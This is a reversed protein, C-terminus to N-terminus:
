DSEHRVDGGAKRYYREDSQRSLGLMDYFHRLHSASLAADPASDQDKSFARYLMWEILANHFRRDLPIPADAGFTDPVRALSVVVRVPKGPPVPPEVYFVRPHAEDFEFSAVVYEGTRPCSLPAFWARALRAIRGDIKSPQGVLRGYRDLTGEVRFFRTADEPLAQRAGPRLTLSEQRAVVEPRLMAIQAVGDNAYEILEERSWRTHEFEPELDNLLQAVERALAGATSM